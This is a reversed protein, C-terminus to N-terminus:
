FPEHAYAEWLALVLRATHVMDALRAREECTHPAEMAASLVVGPVGRAMFINNDSGGNSAILTPTLGLSAIVRGIRAIPLADPAHAYALFESQRTLEARTGPMAAAEERAITEIRSLLAALTEPCHSRAEGRVTVRDPVINTAKGGEIMAANVTTQPDIRGHPMRTLIRAALVLASAGSEPAIGAHAARGHLTLTFTELSPARLIVTGPAGTHDFTLAFRATLVAEDLQRAGALHTEECVTFVLRVAPRPTNHALSFALAELIPALAAKNDAGLVTTGDSQVWRAMGEGVVQPQVGVCPPVVDMHGSVLLTDAHACGCPPIEAILNGAADVRTAVGLTTLRARLAERVPGEAGSPSDCRVLALFTQLIADSDLTGYTM